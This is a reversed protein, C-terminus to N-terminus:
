NKFDSLYLKCSVGLHATVWQFVPDALQCSDMGVSKRFQLSYLFSKTKSWLVINSGNTRIKQEWQMSSLEGKTSILLFSLSIGDSTYTVGLSRQRSLPLRLKTCSQSYKSSCKTTWVVGTCVFCFVASRPQMLQEPVSESHWQPLCWLSWTDWNVSAFILPKM